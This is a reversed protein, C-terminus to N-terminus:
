SSEPQQWLRVNTTLVLVPLRAALRQAMTRLAMRQGVYLNDDVAVVVEIPRSPDPGPEGFVAPGTRPPAAPPTAAPAPPRDPRSSV